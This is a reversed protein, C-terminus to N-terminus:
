KIEREEVHGCYLCYYHSGRFSMIRRVNAHRECKPCVRTM